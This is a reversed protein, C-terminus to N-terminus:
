LNPIKFTKFYELSEPNRMADKNSVTDVAMGLLIKKVPTELKKGSITYPLDAVEYVEDPVHRPSYDARLQKAIKQILEPTLHQGDNMVVFLPMYHKGGEMELNVVLSDKIEEIKNLSGYIEATGIRVGHRNLTADSRGLIIIGQHDTINIWDGHRWINEFMDFYSDRYKANHDDNWFYIPMCPMAKTIVMEGVEGNPVLNGNENYAYLACGLTRCQIEGQFVPLLVNGGVFATCVDTGGSMSTLWVADHIHEYVYVFGEPPLPSGTSGISRLASLDTTKKIDLGAKMCAVIYPASTGFHHVGAKSAMDWLFSLAPFAASGEYLVITAGALLSAHVFNWMMWGTTSYWFFKEGEHVDNHFHLYKLHELLMGGHSHTIAKPKGTTGSSYLIWIPDNFDVPVFTLEKNTDQNMIDTWSTHNPVHGFPIDGLFPVIVLDKCDPLQNRIEELEKVRDFRKGNYTYGDIGILISPSIQKFRDIVSSVGFDPSCSSWIAGISITALMAITAHPTNTLYAAVRDGKQVGHALLYQQFLVVQRSLDEWSLAKIDPFSESCYLVAPRESTAKRFVHEGYNIKSGEFWRVGPMTSGDTVSTYKGHDIIQFYHYLSEWFKEHNDVSWSWLAHYDEFDHNDYTRLWSMYHRLHSKETIERDPNWLPSM